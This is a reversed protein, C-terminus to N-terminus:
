CLANRRFFHRATSNDIVGDVGKINGIMDNNLVAKIRWNNEIAHAAVIQGGFLGQEEGSLAAYAISGDFKHKSLVRAAELVGALGSANDNAGPSDSTGDLPDSFARIM